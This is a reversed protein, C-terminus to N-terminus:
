FSSISHKKWHQDSGMVEGTSEMEPGLLSDVKALKTLPLNASHYSGHVKQILGDEYGLEAM